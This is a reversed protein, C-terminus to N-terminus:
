NNNAVLYYISKVHETEFELKMIGKLSISIKGNIMDKNYNLIEKILSSNYNLSFDNLKTPPQEVSKIFFSVKNAHEVGGGFEMELNMDGTIEYYPKVLVVESEALANKAKVMSNIDTDDLTAVIEFEVDGSYEGAKPIIISDALAYNSTFQSDSIILKSYINGKKIYSLIIDNNAINILKLLQSTNSIATKSNELTINNCKILGVMEKSPSNFKVTLINNEIEWIVSEVLGGLNYKNISSVLYQKNIM